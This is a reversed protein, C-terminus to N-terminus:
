LNIKPAPPPPPPNEMKPVGTSKLTKLFDNSWFVFSDCGQGSFEWAMEFIYFWLARLVVLLGTLFFTPLLLIVVLIKLFLTFLNKM